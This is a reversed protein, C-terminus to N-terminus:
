NDLGLIQSWNGEIQSEHGEACKVLLTKRNINYYVEVAQAFCRECMTDLNNIKILSPAKDAGLGGLFERPM